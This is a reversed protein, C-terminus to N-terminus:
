AVMGLFTTGEKWSPFSINVLAKFIWGLESALFLFYKSDKSPNPIFNFIPNFLTKTLFTFDKAVRVIM